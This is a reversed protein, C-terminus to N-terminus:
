EHSIGSWRFLIPGPREFRPDTADADDVDAFTARTLMPRARAAAHRVPGREIVHNDRSIGAAGGVILLCGILGLAFPGYIAVRTRRVRTARQTM